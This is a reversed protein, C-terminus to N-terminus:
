SGKTNIRDRGYMEDIAARYYNEIPKRRVKMGPTVLGSDPLWEDPCLTIKGPIENKLLGGTWVTEVELGARQVGSPRPVARRVDNGEPRDLERALKLLQDRNPLIIAVLYTMYSDGLACINDVLPSTKLVAEVKGLSIYEGYQLKVLDKKRDPSLHCTEVLNVGLPPVPYIAQRDILRYNGNPLREGIDGTYVWRVGDEEVFVEKTLEENKFYGNTIVRGGIVIEGRPNPQDRVSYGGEKWDVMRIQVTTM